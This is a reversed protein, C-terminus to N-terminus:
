QPPRGNAPTFNMVGPVRGAIFDPCQRAIGVVRSIRDLNRDRKFIALRDRDITFCEGTNGQNLLEALNGALATDSTAHM